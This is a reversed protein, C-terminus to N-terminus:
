AASLRGSEWLTFFGCHKHTSAAYGLKAIEAAAANFGIPDGGTKLAAVANVGGPIKPGHKKIREREGFRGDICETAAGPEATVLDVNGVRVLEVEWGRKEFFATVKKLHYGPHTKLETSMIRFFASGFLTSHLM